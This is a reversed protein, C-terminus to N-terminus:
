IAHRVVSPIDSIACFFISDLFVQFIIKEDFFFYISIIILNFFILYYSVYYYYDIHLYYTQFYGMQKDIQLSESFIFQFVCGGFFITCIILSEREPKYRDQAFAAPPASSRSRSRQVVSIDGVGTVALWGTLQPNYTKFRHVNCPSSSLSLLLSWVSTIAFKM